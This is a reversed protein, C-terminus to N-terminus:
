SEERQLRSQQSREERNLRENRMLTKVAQTMAAQRKNAEIAEQRAEAGLLLEAIEKAEVEVTVKVGEGGRM